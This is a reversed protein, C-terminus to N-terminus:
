TKENDYIHILNQSLPLWWGIINVAYFTDTNPTKRTRMNGCESQLSQREYTEYFCLLFIKSGNLHVEITEEFQCSTMFNRLRFTHFILNIIALTRLYLCFIYFVESVKGWYQCSTDSNIKYFPSKPHIHLKLM